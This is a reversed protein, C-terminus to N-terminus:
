GWRGKECSESQPFARVLCSQVPQGSGSRSLTRSYAFRNGSRSAAVIRLERRSAVLVAIQGPQPEATVLHELFPGFRQESAFRTLQERTRCPVYSETSAFCTEAASIAGRLLNRTELDARQKTSAPDPAPAGPPPALTRSSVQPGEDGCGGVAGAVLLAVAAGFM